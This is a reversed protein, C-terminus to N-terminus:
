RCTIAVGLTAPPARLSSTWNVTTSGGVCRGQLISIASDASKRAGSEQYLRGYAEAERMHFESSSALPGEEVIAVRLGAASLSQATIAGGAGSGLVAVDCEVTGDRELRAADITRWGRALGDRIPDAIM